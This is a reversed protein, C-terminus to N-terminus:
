TIELYKILNRLTQINDDIAGLASNCGRCLLGRVLGTQHDHDVELVQRNAIHDCTSCKGDQSDFMAQYDEVTLGYQALTRRRRSSRRSPLSSAYDSYCPKCRSQLYPVGHRNMGKGAKPFELVSVLRLCAVCKKHTSNPNLAEGRKRQLADGYLRLRRNHKACLSRAQSKNLCDPITCILSQTRPRGM